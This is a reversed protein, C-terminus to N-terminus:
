RHLSIIFNQLIFSDVSFIPAGGLMVGRSQPSSHLAVGGAAFDGRGAGLRDIRGVDRRADLGDERGAMRRDMRGLAGRLPQNRAGLQQGQRYPQRDLRGGFWYTFVMDLVYCFRNIVGGAAFEM